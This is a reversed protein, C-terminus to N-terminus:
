GILVMNTKRAVNDSLIEYLDTSIRNSEWIMNPPIKIYKKQERDLIEEIPEIIPETIKINLLKKRVWAFSVLIISAAIQTGRSKKNVFRAINSFFDHIKM